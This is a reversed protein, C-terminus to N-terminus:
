WTYLHLDNIYKSVKEPLFYAMNKGEHLSKRIFTSSIEFLPAHFLQVSSHSLLQHHQSGKRPFMYFRYDALLKECNKWHHLSHFIDTGAVLVFETEPYLNTILELTDITYSPKPMSFEIDCVKFRNDNATALQVMKLRHQEDLLEKEEKFPNQPSVVFWLEELDSFGCMYSAIMLHGVHIPNFSGFFLGTKLM